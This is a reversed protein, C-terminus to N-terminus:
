AVLERARDLFESAAAVAGHPKMQRYLTRIQGISRQSSRQTALDLARLGSAAAGDLKGNQLQASALRTLFVQQDGVHRDAPLAGIGRELFPEARQPQGAQLLAEGAKTVIDAHSLWYLWPPNHKPEIREACTQAVSISATCAPEDGLAAQARARWSHLLAAQGPPTTGRTGALASDILILADQPHGLDASQEAMCKLIHAGLLRDGATHAARLATMYFRQARGHDGLDYATYGVVQGLEALALHLRRGTEEDYSGQNLLGSVWGFDREALSLVVRPSHADDMRRLESIMPPLRDALQSTVRDGQLAAALPGPEHVLWQHAPATLAAGTLFLFTRREVLGGSGTLAVAAEVTGGPDWSAVLVPDRAADASVPKGANRVSLSPTRPWLEAETTNYLRCYLQRYFRHPRHLGREHRSVAHADLGIEKKTLAGLQEAVERQDLGLALRHERLRNAVPTRRPRPV